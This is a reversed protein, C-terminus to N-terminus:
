DDYIEYMSVEFKVLSGPNLDEKSNVCVAESEEKLGCLVLCVKEKTGSDNQTGTQVYVTWKGKSRVPKEFGKPISELTEVLNTSPQIEQSVIYIFLCYLSAKHNSFM